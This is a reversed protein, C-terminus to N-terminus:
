KAPAVVSQRRAERFQAYLSELGPRLVAARNNWNSKQADSFFADKQADGARKAKADVLERDFTLLDDWFHLTTKRSHELDKVAPAKAGFERLRTEREALASLWAECLRDGLQYAVASAVPQRAAEDRLDDRLAILDPRIDRFSVALPALVASTTTNGVTALVEIQAPKAAPAAEVIRQGWVRKGKSNKGELNANDNILEMIDSSKAWKIAYRRPSEDPNLCKWKWKGENLTGDPKFVYTADTFWRWKGVIPDVAPDQARLRASLLLLASVLLFPLSKM